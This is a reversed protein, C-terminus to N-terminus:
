SSPRRTGIVEFDLQISRGNADTLLLHHTGEEPSVALRHEDRTTGLYRGDLHWHISTSPFRHAAEFVVEGRSGDLDVPVTMRAGPM